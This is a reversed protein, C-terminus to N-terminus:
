FGNQTRIGRRVRQLLLVILDKYEGIDTRFNTREDLQRADRNMMDERCIGCSREFRYAQIENLNIQTINVGTKWWIM